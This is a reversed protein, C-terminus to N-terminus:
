AAARSTPRLDYGWPSFSSANRYLTELLLAIVLKALIWSRAAKPEKHPLRGLKLLQKLRKFTLEIQWRCRYLDLVGTANLREAPLTTFLMVFHAAQLTRPDAKRGRRNAKKSARREAKQALPRPLRLAVVRGEVPDTDESVLVVKWDGVRGVKLRRAHELAFFPCGGEEEIMWSHNWRLRVLVHGGATVVSQVGKPSFYARDALLVDGRQVPTRVLSEGGKADTLEHWDCQLTLLDLTYHVRWETGKSAPGQVTTADIARPRLGEPVRAQGRYSACLEQAIWGLWDGSSRLRKLLAVQSMDAIGSARSQEVTARLGGDNVAHFLLIRLLPGPEALYRARRFAGLRRATERWGDPLLGQIIGWEDEAANRRM